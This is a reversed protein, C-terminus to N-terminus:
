NTFKVSNVITNIIGDDCKATPCFFTILASPKGTRAVLFTRFDLRGTGAGDSLVGTMKFAPQGGVSTAEPSGPIAVSGPLTAQLGTQLDETSNSTSITETTQAVMGTARNPSSQIIPNVASWDTNGPVAFLGDFEEVAAAATVHQDTYEKLTWTDPYSFSFPAAVNGPYTNWPANQDGGSQSVVYVIAAAVVSLATVGGIVAGVPFKKKPTATAVTQPAYTPYSPNPHSPHQGYPYSMQSPHSPHSVSPYSMPPNSTPGPYPQQPYYPSSQTGAPPPWSRAGPNSPQSPHSPHDSETGSIADRLATVFATCTPYRDVPSKALARQMVQNVGHPLDPRYPTLPPPDHSVHAYLLALETDRQFPPQGTLAEYVVCAFAYGDSRGDVPLGRIQEPAVYRPTGMFHGHSTLGAEASASKTLGFDTLYVHDAETVLINAPKVDRHVLGNAHAADLASAIQAFLRNARAVPLPGHTQVLRRMDSGEVYRMAIFLLDESESAEYIPIIHPHDISAVLRSERVFRDRFRADHALQPALIKLAVARGLRQDRARYVTAMGGRGIVAEITYDGLQQGVLAPIPSGDTM